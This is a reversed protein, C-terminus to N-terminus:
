ISGGADHFTVKYYISGVKPQKCYIKVWKNPIAAPYSHWIDGNHQCWNYIHTSHVHTYKQSNTQFQSDIHAVYVPNPILWLSTM